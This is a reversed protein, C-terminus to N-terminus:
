PPAMSASVAVSLVADVIPEYGTCRCLSGSLAERVQYETPSPIRSLLDLASILFGPTCYGCQLAGKEGFARQLPHLVEGNALGEVTRVDFGDTQIAYLICSRAAKGNVMVTCAGCVGHECGIHTGTLRLEHRLFDALTTRAQVDRTFEQGNITISIKGQVQPTVAAKAVPFSVAPLASGAGPLAHETSDSEVRRQANACAEEAADRVLVKTLTRRYNASAHLDSFPDIARAASEAVAQILAPEVPQGVLLKEAEGVRIARDAVGILAIRALTCIGGDDVSIKCAVGALAFDGHRRALERFSAGTGAPWHPLRVAVLFEEAQVATELMGNFFDQAHVTRTGEIQHAILMQADLALALAGWEAAPDAHVLSGGVTGRNRIPRHAIHPIAAAILPQHTRLRSDDELTSQRTLADITLGTVDDDQSACPLHNVDILVSPSVVRLNLMPGLTQGGALIKAEDGYEALLRLVEDRERPATYLFQSPKM